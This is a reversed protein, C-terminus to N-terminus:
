PGAADSYEAAVPCPPIAREANAVWDPHCFYAVRDPTLKAKGGRVLRDLAPPSALLFRPTALTAARMGVAAASRARSIATPGAAPRGDDPEIILKVPADARRARADPPLSRRRPHGLCRGRPPMLMLGRRAMRFLELTERDGPGYVAPPRVIAWDLGSAAVLAEAQGQVRRLRFSRSARPSRPSTSSAASAAPPPPPSCRWRAPSM